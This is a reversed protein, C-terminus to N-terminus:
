HTKVPAKRFSLIIVLAILAFGIAVYYVMHVVQTMAYMESAGANNHSYIQSTMTMISTFLAPGIAGSIQNITNTIASGHASISREVQNLALSTVPSLNLGLGLTFLAYMIMATLLGTEPSITTFVALVGLMIVIGTLLLPKHGIKDFLQGAAMTTIALVIGGPLMLIGTEFASLDAVTQFYVPLILMMSFQLMMLLLIMVMSKSFISSRFPKMSLLPNSIRIQRRAFILISSFGIALMLWVSPNTLGGEAGFGSFAVVILGFGATSLAVSWVDIKPNTQETVNRLFLVAPILVLVSLIVIILFIMRWSYFEIVLGSFVPGISPAFLLVLNYVGIMTGMIRVPTVTMIVNMALPMIIGTGTAQVLRGILLVYFEPATFALLSGIVYITLATIYLQRVTFKEMLYASVPISIGIVLMYGTTM